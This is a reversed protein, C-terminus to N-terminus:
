LVSVNKRYPGQRAQARVHLLDSTNVNPRLAQASNEGRVINNIPPRSVGQMALAVLALKTTRLIGRLPYFLPKAAWHRKQVTTRLRLRTGNAAADLGSTSAAHCVLECGRARCFRFSEQRRRRAIHNRYKQRDCELPWFSM